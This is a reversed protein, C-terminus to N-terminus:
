NGLFTKKRSLSEFLNETESKEEDEDSTTDVDLSTDDDSRKDFEERKEMEAKVQALFDLFEKNGKRDVKMEDLNLDSFLGESVEENTAHLHLKGDFWCDFCLRLACYSCRMLAMSQSHHVCKKGIATNLMIQQFNFFKDIPENFEFGCVKWAYKRMKQYICCSVQNYVVSHLKIIFYRNDPRLDSMENVYQRRVYETIDKVVKKYHYFFFLDLPQCYKTSLKPIYEISFKHNIKGVM